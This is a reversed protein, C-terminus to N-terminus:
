FYLSTLTFNLTSQATLYSLGTSFLEMIFILFFRQKKWGYYFIINEWWTVRLILGIQLIEIKESSRPKRLGLLWTLLLTILREFAELKENESQRYKGENLSQLVTKETKFVEFKLRQFSMYCPIFKTGLCALFYFNLLAFIYFLPYVSSKLDSIWQSTSIDTCYFLTSIYM